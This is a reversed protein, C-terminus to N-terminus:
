PLQSIMTTNLTSQETPSQTDLAPAAGSVTVTSTAQGLQLAVDQSSDIQAELILQERKFAKFGGATITLTYTAPKLLAFTYRGDAATETVRTEATSENRLEVQANPVAAGQPDTVVGTLSSSYAQGYSRASSALFAIGILAAFCIINLLQLRFASRGTSTLCMM